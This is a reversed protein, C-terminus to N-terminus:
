FSGWGAIVHEFKVVSVTSCPTHFINLYSWSRREPSKNKVKFM